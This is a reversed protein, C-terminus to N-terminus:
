AAKAENAVRALWIDAWDAGALKPVFVQVRRDIGDRKAERLLRQALVYASAQGAFEANADNDAYVCVRKVSAPIWLKEMNGCNLASWVQKGTSLRVALGTEIGETLRAKWAKTYLEGFEAFPYDKPVNVTKSISSDIFPQVRVLMQLHDDASMEMASVFYPPLQATDGGCERFFRYAHDEVRYEMFSNDPMRKKRNLSLGLGFLAYLAGLM